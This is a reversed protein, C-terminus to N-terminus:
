FVILVPYNQLIKLFENYFQWPLVNLYGFVKFITFKTQPMGGHVNTVHDYLVIPSLGRNSRSHDCSQFPKLWTIVIFMAIPSLGRNSRSHDCSQFHKLWTIVIFMAIPSMGCKSLKPMENIAIEEEEISLNRSFFSWGSSASIWKM